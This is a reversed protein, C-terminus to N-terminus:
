LDYFALALLDPVQLLLDAVQLSLLLLHDVIELEARRDEEFAELIELLILLLCLLHRM